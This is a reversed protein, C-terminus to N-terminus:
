VNIGLAVQVARRRISGSRGFLRMGRRRIDSMLASDAMFLRNLTDTFYLMTANAGRRSREYRRLTPVDGPYEGKELGVAVASALAAADAFGLNVGQGALPHVSHAADGILALGQTVYRVAHQARLPFSVSDGAVRLSGLTADSAATLMEGLEDDAAASVAAAADPSISWVVSCRGDALPLLALPGDPLFRQWATEQHGREPRVHTVVATQPYRWSKSAINASRRVLSAGGDAGVLLDPTITSGSGLDVSYGGDAQEEIGKIPEGFLLEVGLARCCRLLADRILLNEVIFGLEPIAFDAADFRLADPGDAHGRSDWVQMARYVSARQERVSQWAGLKDLLAVSGLSVASVRMGVDAQLDFSPPRGADVVTVRCRARPAGHAILAAASLGVMGGGAILVDFGRKM